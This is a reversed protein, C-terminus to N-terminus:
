APMPRGARCFRCRRTATANSCRCASAAEASPCAASACWRAAPPSLTSASCKASCAPSRARGRRCEVASPRVVASRQHRQVPQRRRGLTHLPPHVDHLADAQHRHVVGRAGVQGRRLARQQQGLADAVRRLGRPRAVPEAVDVVAEAVHGVGHLVHLLRQGFGPRAAVPSQHQRRQGRQALGMGARRLIRLCQRQEVLHDGTPASADAAGVRQRGEGDDAAGARQAIAALEISGLGGKGIRQLAHNAVLVFDARGDVAPMSCHQQPAAMPLTRKRSGGFRCADRAARAAQRLIRNGLGDTAPGFPLEFAPGFRDRADFPGGGPQRRAFGPQVAREIVAPEAFAQERQAPAVVRPAAGRLGQAPRAAAIPQAQGHALARQRDVPGAAAPGVQRLAIHGRGIGRRPASHRRVFVRQRLTDIRPQLPGGPADLIRLLQQVLCEGGERAHVHAPMRRLPAARHRRCPRAIRRRCRDVSRVSAM